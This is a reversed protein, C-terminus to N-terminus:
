SNNGGPPYCFIPTQKDLRIIQVFAVKILMLVNKALSYLLFRKRMFLNTWIFYGKYLRTM